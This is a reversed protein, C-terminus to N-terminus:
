REARGANEADTAVGMARIADYTMEAALLDDDTIPERALGERLSAEIAAVDEESLSEDTVYRRLAAADEMRASVDRASEEADGRERMLEDFLEYRARLRDGASLDRRSDLEALRRDVEDPTTDRPAGTLAAERARPPPPM